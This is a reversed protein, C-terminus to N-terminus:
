GWISSLLRAISEYKLTHYQGKKTRPDLKPDWMANPQWM